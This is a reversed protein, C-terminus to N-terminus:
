GIARGGQCTQLSPLASMAPRGRLEGNVVDQDIGHPAPRGCPRADAHIQAMHGFRQPWRLFRGVRVVIRRAFPALPVLLTARPASCLLCVTCKRNEEPFTGDTGPKM